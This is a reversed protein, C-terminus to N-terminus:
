SEAEAETETEAESETESEAESVGGRECLTIEAIEAIEASLVM